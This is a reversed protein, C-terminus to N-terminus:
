LTLHEASFDVPPTAEESMATSFAVFSSKRVLGAKLSKKRSNEKDQDLKARIDVYDEL